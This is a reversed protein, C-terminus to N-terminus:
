KNLRDVLNQIAPSLPKLGEPYRFYLESKDKRLEKYEGVTCYTIDLPYIEIYHNMEVPNKTHFLKQFIKGRALLGFNASYGIMDNIGFSDAGNDAYTLTVLAINLDATAGLVKLLPPCWTHGIYESLPDFHHTFLGNKRTRIIKPGYKGAVTDATAGNKIKEPVKVIGDPMKRGMLSVASLAMLIEKSEQDKGPQFVKEVGEKVSRAYQRTSKDKPSADAKKYGKVKGDVLFVEAMSETYLQLTDGDVVGSSFERIFCIVRKVPRDIPSVEVEKLRFASPKLSVKHNDSSISGTEYGMCSVTVPFEGDEVTIVGDSNTMGIIIGSKGIM